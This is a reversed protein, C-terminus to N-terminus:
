SKDELKAGKKLNCKPCSLELNTLDFEAGGKALPVIHDVHFDKESVTKGCKMCEGGDRAYIVRRVRPWNTQMFFDRLCRNGCFSTKRGQLVCGCARCLHNGEEDKRYPFREPNTGSVRSM